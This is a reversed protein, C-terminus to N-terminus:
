GQTSVATWEDFINLVHQRTSSRRSLPVLPRRVREEMLGLAACVTKIPVPNTEYFCARMAPLLDFHRTRASEVNGALADRVMTSFAEPLANSVVSVVGEGGLAIIPWAMEDDGAYVAFDDPRHALIDAVQTLDGSAEKIGRVEPLSQALQRVTQPEINFSTRGPVNYLIIPIGAAEAIAEVHARFGEQSPKNYYPGVVLLADAGLRAAEESLRISQKTNNTGTGVIVPVRGDVHEVAGTVLQRREPPTITPNEGTTGLVVVGDVGNEIQYDILQRFAEEDITNDVTFPTVLAPATGRFILDSM